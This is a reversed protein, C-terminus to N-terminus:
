SINLDSLQDGGLALGQIELLLLSRTKCPCCSPSQEVLLTLAESYSATHFASAFIFASPPTTDTSQRHLDNLISARLNFSLALLLGKNMNAGHTHLSSTVLSCYMCTVDRM